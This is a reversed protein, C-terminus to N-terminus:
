NVGRRVCACMCGEELAGSLIIWLVNNRIGPRVTHFEISAICDPPPSTHLSTQCKATTVSNAVNNAGALWNACLTLAAGGTWQQCKGM